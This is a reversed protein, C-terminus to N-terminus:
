LSVPEFIRNFSPKLMESYDSHGCAELCTSKKRLYIFHVEFVDRCMKTAGTLNIKSFCFRVGSMYEHIRTTYLASANGIAARLSMQHHIM